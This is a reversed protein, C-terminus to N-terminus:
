CNLSTGTDSACVIKSNEIRFFKISPTDVRAKCCINNAANSSLSAYDSKLSSYTSTLAVLTRNMDESQLQITTITAQLGTKETLCTQEGLSKNTSLKLFDAKCTATDRNCTQVQNSLDSTSQYCSTLNSSFLNIDLKLKDLQNQVDDIRNVGSIKNAQSSPAPSQAADKTLLYGSSSESSGSNTYSAISAAAFVFLALVVVYLALRNKSLSLGHHGTQFSYVM